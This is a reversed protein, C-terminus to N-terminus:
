LYSGHLASLGAALLLGFPQNRFGARWLAPLRLCPTTLGSELVPRVDFPADAFSEDPTRTRRERRNAPFSFPIPLRDRTGHPHRGGGGHDPGPFWPWSELGLACLIPEAPFSSLFPVVPNFRTMGPVPFLLLTRLFRCRCWSSRLVPPGPRRELCPRGRIKRPVPLSSLLDGRLTRWCALWTSATGWM